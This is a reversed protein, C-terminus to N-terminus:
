ALEITVQRGTSTVLKANPYGVLKMAEAVRVAVSQSGSMIADPWLDLITLAEVLGIGAAALICRLVKGDARLTEHLSDVKRVDTIDILPAAEGWIRVAIESARDAVEQRPTEGIAAKLHVQLARMGSAPDTKKDSM